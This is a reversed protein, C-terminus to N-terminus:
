NLCIRSVVSTDVNTYKHFLRYQKQIANRFCKDITMLFEEVTSEQEDVYYLMIDDMDPFKGVIRSYYQHTTKM